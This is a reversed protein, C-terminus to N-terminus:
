FPAKSFQYQTLFISAQYASGDKLRGKFKGLQSQSFDTHVGLDSLDFAFPFSGPDITALPQSPKCGSFDDGSHFFVWNLLRASLTLQAIWTKDTKDSQLEVGALDQPEFAISSVLVSEARDRLYARLVKKGDVESAFYITPAEFEGSCAVFLDRYTLKPTFRLWLVDAVAHSAFFIIVALLGKKM